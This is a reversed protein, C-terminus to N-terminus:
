WGGVHALRSLSQEGDRLERASLRRERIWRIGARCLWSSEPKGLFGGKASPGSGNVSWGALQVANGLAGEATEKRWQEPLLFRLGCSRGRAVLCTSTVVAADGSTLRDRQSAAEFRVYGLWPGFGWVWGCPRLVAISAALSALGSSWRGDTAVARLGKTGVSSDGARAVREVAGPRPERGEGARSGLRGVVRTRLLVGTVADLGFVLRPRRPELESSGEGSASGAALKAVVGDARPSRRSAAVWWGSVKRCRPPQASTPNSSRLARVLAADSLSSLVITGCSRLWHLECGGTDGGASIGDGHVFSLSTVKSSAGPETDLHV